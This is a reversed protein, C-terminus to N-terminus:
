FKRFEAQNWLVNFIQKQMNAVKANKIEIGFVEGEHWNYIALVDDYIDMQHIIDVIKPSLYRSQTSSTITQNKLHNPMGLESKKISELFEDSYLERLRINREGMEQYIQKAFNKGVASEFIRYTYGLVEKDAKLLNWAMQRLGNQGRYFLVKTDGLVQTSNSSLFPQIQNFMQRLSRTNIEQQKLLRELNSPNSLQYLKTNEEIQEEIIGKKLLDEILRYIRTRKIPLRRSLQLVTQAGHDILFSVISTEDKNLGLGLLFKKLGIQSQM